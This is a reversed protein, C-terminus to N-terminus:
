PHNTQTNKTQQHFRLAIIVGPASRIESKPLPALPSRHLRISSHIILYTNCQYENSYFPLFEQETVSATAMSLFVPAMTFLGSRSSKQSRVLKRGNEIVLYVVRKTYITLEVFFAHFCLSKEFARRDGTGLLVRRKARNVRVGNM